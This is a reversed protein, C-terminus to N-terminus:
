ILVLVAITLFRFINLNFIQVKILLAFSLVAFICCFYETFHIMQYWEDLSFTIATHM